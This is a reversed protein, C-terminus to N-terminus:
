AQLVLAVFGCFAAYAFFFLIADMPDAGAADTGDKKTGRPCALCLAARRRM